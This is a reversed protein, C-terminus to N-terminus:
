KLPEGIALRYQALAVNYAALAKHYTTQTFLLSAQADLVDTISSKGQDYKEREIRLSETAQDIATETAQVQEYASQTNLLATKVDLQIQLALKRLRQRGAALKARERRIRAQIQGGEFIPIEAMVGVQGADELRDTGAPQEAAGMAWRGGYSAQGYITPWQAALAADVAKAQAGVAAQAALFDKRQAIALGFASARSPMDAASAELKGAVKIPAHAPSLGLLNAMAEYQVAQVNRQAVIQQAINALRVQTRLRDVKAAKRAAILHDVRELHRELARKNFLLSEIVHDQSLINFYVSSVNFVLEQRSRGLQHEAAKALLEAAKIQSTIRGGTFLPVNMVLDGSAINHSFLGAQGNTDPAILRQENLSYSYGTEVGVHPLAEGTAFDKEASAAQVEHRRAAIEPNNALALRIAEGLGLRGSPKTLGDIGHDRAPAPPGAQGKWFAATGDYPDTPNILACGPMAMALLLTLIIKKM